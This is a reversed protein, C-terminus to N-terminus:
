DGLFRGSEVTADAGGSMGDMGGTPVTALQVQRGARDPAPKRGM